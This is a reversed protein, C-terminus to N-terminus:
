DHLIGEEELRVKENIVHMKIIDVEKQRLPRGFYKSADLILANMITAEDKGSRFEENIALRLKKVAGGDPNLLKELFSQGGLM